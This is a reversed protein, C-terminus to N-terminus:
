EGKKKPKAIEKLPVALCAAIRVGPTYYCQWCLGQPRNVNRQCCWRCVARFKAKGSM